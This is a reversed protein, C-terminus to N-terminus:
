EFMIAYQYEDVLYYKKFTAGQFEKFKSAFYFTPIVLSYIYLSYVRQYLLTDFVIKELKLLM